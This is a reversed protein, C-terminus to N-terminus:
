LSRLRKGIREYVADLPEGLELLTGEAAYPYKGETPSRNVYQWGVLQLRELIESVLLRVQENPVRTEVRRARGAVLAHETQVDTAVGENRQIHDHAVWTLRMLEGLTDQLEVLTEHEFDVRRDDRRQKRELQGRALEILITLAAGLFVLVVALAAIALDGWDL